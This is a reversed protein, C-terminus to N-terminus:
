ARGEVFGAGEKDAIGGLTEVFATPRVVMFTYTTGDRELILRESAMAKRLCITLHQDIPVSVTGGNRGSFTFRLEQAFLHITGSAWTGGNRRIMYTVAPLLIWRWVAFQYDKPLPRLIAAPM